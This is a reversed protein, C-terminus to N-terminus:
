RAVAVASLSITFTAQVGGSNGKTVSVDDITITPAPDNDTITGTGQSPTGLSANVPASLGVIFTENLEDLLDALISVNITQTTTGAAFTLTGSAATYDTGASATGGATAHGVTVM